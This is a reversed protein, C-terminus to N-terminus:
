KDSTTRRTQASATSGIRYLIYQNLSVKEIKAAEALERHMSRPMRLSVKGSYEEISRKFEELSITEGDNEEDAAKMMAIDIEDPEVPQIKAMKAAFEEPTLPKRKM